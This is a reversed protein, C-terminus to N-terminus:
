ITVCHQLLAAREPYTLRTPSVVASWSSLILLAIRRACAFAAALIPRLFKPLNIPLTGSILRADDLEIASWSGPLICCRSCDLRNNHLAYRVRDRDSSCSAHVLGGRQGIFSSHYYLSHARSVVLPSIYIYARPM